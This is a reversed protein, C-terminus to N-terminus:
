NELRVLDTTVNVHLTWDGNEMIALDPTESELNGSEDNTFDGTVLSTFDATELLGDQSIDLKM